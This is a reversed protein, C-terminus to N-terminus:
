SALIAQQRLAALVPLLPLGLISFYDGQVLEFLQAGAGEFHYCGVSSLIKGGEAALYADLFAASFARMKLTAIAAHDWAVAGDRALCVASVLRHERGALEELLARAATLDPSKAISRGQFDLVSDAGLVLRGPHRASVALAKCRALERALSEPDGKVAAAISAEDLDAPDTTFAVGAQALLAARAASASALVLTM